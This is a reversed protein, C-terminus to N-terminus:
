IPTVRSKHTCKMKEKRNASDVGGGALRTRDNTRKEKRNISDVDRDPIWVVWVWLFFPELQAQVSSREAIIM